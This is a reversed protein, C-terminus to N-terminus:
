GQRAYLRAYLGHAALLAEHCGREVVRGAEVVVIEDARRVTSLRHAIVLVTRHEMLRELAEQVLAESETDLASTAEDLVLIPADALVARAICLRQRQGGSLRQGLEDIRTDYGRPLESIFAHANAARAAAEIEAQSAEPRGFAINAAVTDNFLFTDQTVLAVRRRLSALSYARLEQGDLLVRGETPDRFRCVLNALTTKGAGSPGVLAVVQGPALAFDVGSLVAGDGYDFGVGEFRLGCPGAPVELTGADEVEPELDLIRFVEQAAATSRQWLSAILALGKLPDNMFGLAVLFAILDGPTIAGAFVQRGGVYIAASVGIAAILEVVPGPILQAAAARLQLRYQEHNLADFRARARREGGFAQVVRIGVLLEQTLATLAALNALSAQTSQRLRKGFRDIPLAVLPLVAVAVAALLPNLAFAAILLGVLTIPKQVATAFGSVAYQVNNVDASLRSVQEGTPTAQHYAVGLRLYQGMLDSRLREVVKFAIGRTLLGRGINVAASLVYLGAVAFPMALLARQDQAILVRDLVVKILLVIAPPINAAVVLLVAGLILGGVHPRFLGVFRRTAPSM